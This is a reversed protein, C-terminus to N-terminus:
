WHRLRLSYRIASVAAHVLTAKFDSPVLQLALWATQEHKDNYPYVMFHRSEPEKHKMNIIDLNQNIHKHVHQTIWHVCAKSAGPYVACNKIQNSQALRERFLGAIYKDLITVMWPQKPSILGTIDTTGIGTVYYQFRSIYLVFRGLWILRVYFTFPPYM